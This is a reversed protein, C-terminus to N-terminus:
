PPKRAGAIFSETQTRGKESQREKKELYNHLEVTGYSIGFLVHTNWFRKFTQRM